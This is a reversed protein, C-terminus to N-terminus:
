CKGCRGYEKRQHCNKSVSGLSPADLKISVTYTGAKVPNFVYNGHSNTIATSEGDGELIVTVGKM